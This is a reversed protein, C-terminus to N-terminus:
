VARKADIDARLDEEGGAVSGHDLDSGAIPDDQNGYRFAVQQDDV